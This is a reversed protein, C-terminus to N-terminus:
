VAITVSTLGTVYLDLGSSLNLNDLSEKVDSNIKEIDAPDDVKDLVYGNINPIDHRGAVGGLKLRNM